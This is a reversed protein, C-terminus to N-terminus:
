GRSLAPDDAPERTAAVMEALEAVKVRDAGRLGGRRIEEADLRLWATWDVPECVTRPWRRGCRRRSAPARARAARAPRGARGQRDRHRRGQQHRDRRHPRAQDLRHRLRRAGAGRRRRVVPRRRQAGHRHRRRVAPRPDARPTASPGCSWASTSRTREGTGRVRDGDVVNREIEIGSVRGDTGLIRVPRACSTCTSAARGTPRRPRRGSPSCRSASGCRPTGGARARGAALLGDDHVIM